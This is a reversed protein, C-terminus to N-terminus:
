VAAFGTMLDFVAAGLRGRSADRSDFFLSVFFGLLLYPIEAPTLAKTGESWEVNM